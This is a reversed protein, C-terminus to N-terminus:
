NSYIKTGKMKVNGDSDLVISTGEGRKLTVSNNAGILLQGKSVLSLTKEATVNVTNKGYVTLQGSKGLIISSQGDGSNIIIGEEAFQIEQNQKTRLYKVEPNAMRDEVDGEVPQYGSVASVAYADKEENTPFYVRVEDGKEPMCYWGSGDPSASMTSYPFWYMARGPEDIELNVKVKDRSIDAVTGSLSIGVIGAHYVELGKLGEKRKLEYENKLIGDNLIHRASQVILNKGSLNIYDGVQFVRYDKIQFVTFDTEKVDPWRNKKVMRYEDLAKFVCYQYPEIDYTEGQNPTGIFFSMKETRVDPILRAGYHSLLRKLFIWDTEQYQMVLRGVPADPISIIYDSNEYKSMVEKILQHLTMSTNQFSRSQKIIDMTSTNGKVCLNMYYVNGQRSIQINSVIGRFLVELHGEKTYYSVTVPTFSTTTYVYDEAVEEPVIATLYLQGHENIDKTLELTLIHETKYTSLVINEYSIAYDEM